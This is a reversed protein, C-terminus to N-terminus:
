VGEQLDWSLGRRGKTKFNPDNARRMAAVEERSLKPAKQVAAQPRPPRQPPPM